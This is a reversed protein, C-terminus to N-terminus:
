CGPVQHHGGYRRDTCGATLRKTNPQSQGQGRLDLLLVRQGHEALAAAQSEFM